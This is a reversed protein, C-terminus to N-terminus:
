LEIRANECSFETTKSEFQYFISEPSKRPPVSAWPESTIVKEELGTLLSLSAIRQHSTRPIVAAQVLGMSSASVSRWLSAGLVFHGIFFQSCLLHCHESCPMADM